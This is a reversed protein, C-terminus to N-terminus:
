WEWGRRCMAQTTPHSVVGYANFQRSIVYIVLSVLFQCCTNAAKSQVLPSLLQIILCETRVQVIIGAAVFGEFIDQERATKCWLIFSNWYYERATKGSPLPKYVDQTLMYQQGRSLLLLQQNYAQFLGIGIPLYLSMVWYEVGCPWHENLPYVLFVITTYVHLINTAALALPIKRMRIVPDNRFNWLVASLGLVVLTFLVAVVIQLIGWGDLNYGKFNHGEPNLFPM